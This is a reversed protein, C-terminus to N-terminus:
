LGYKIATFRDWAQSLLDREIERPLENAVDDGERYVGGDDEQVIADCVEEAENVDFTIRLNEGNLVIEAEMPSM